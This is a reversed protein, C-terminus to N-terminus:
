GPLATFSKDKCSPPATNELTLLACFTQAAVKWAGGERVAYGHSNPLLTQKGSYITFTVKALNASLLQVGSVKATVDVASPSNSEKQLTSRFTPGHQLVTISKALSTDTDFFIKYVKSITGAAGSTAPSSSSSPQRTTSGANGSSSCGAVALVLGACWAARRVPVAM